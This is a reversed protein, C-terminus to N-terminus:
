EWLMATIFDLHLVDSEKGQVRLTGANYPENPSVEGYFVQTLIEATSLIVMDAAAPRGDKVQVTGADTVMTFDRGLDSAQIQITRNWDKNMARLRDNENCSQAFSELSDRVEEVSAM